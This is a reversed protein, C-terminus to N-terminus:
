PSTFQKKGLLTDLRKSCFRTVLLLTGEVCLQRSATMTPNFKCNETRITKFHGSEANKYLSFSRIFSLCVM